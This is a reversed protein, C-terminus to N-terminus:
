MALLKFPQGPWYTLTIDTRSPMRGELAKRAVRITQDYDHLTGSVNVDVVLAANDRRRELASVLDSWEWDLKDRARKFSWTLFLSLLHPTRQQSLFEPFPSTYARGYDGLSLVTVSTLQGLFANDLVPTAGDLKFTRLNRTAPSVAESISWDIQQGTGPFVSLDLHQLSYRSSQVLQRLLDNCQRSRVGLHLRSLKVTLNFLRSPVGHVGGIRLDVLQSTPSVLLPELLSYSIEACAFSRLRSWDLPGLWLTAEQPLYCCLALHQVEPALRTLQGIERWLEYNGKFDLRMSKLRRSQRGTSFTEILRAASTSDIWATQEHGIALFWRKCVLRLASRAKIPETCAERKQHLEILSSPGSSAAVAGFISLLLEDPVRDFVSPPAIDVRGGGVVAVRAM